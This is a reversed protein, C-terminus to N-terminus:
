ISYTRSGLQRTMHQPSSFYLPYITCTGSGRVGDSPVIVTIVKPLIKSASGTLVEDKKEMWENM